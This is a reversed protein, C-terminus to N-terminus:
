INSWIVTMDDSASSTVINLSEVEFGGPVTWYMRALEGIAIVGITTSGSKLTITGVATKNLSLGLMVSRKTETGYLNTTTAAHIYTFNAPSHM